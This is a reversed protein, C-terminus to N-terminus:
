EDFAVTLSVRRNISRAADTAEEELPELPGAGRVSLLDPDVDRKKLLARVAEARALSLSLNSTGKGTSDSHGTVTVRTTVHLAASMTELQRLEAALEDLLADESPAPLSENHGFRIEKSQIADRLKGLTGSSVDQVQALDVVPAGEPLARVYARARQLWGISASGHAVIQNRAVTLTLGPPPQLSRVMRRLVLEPNLG